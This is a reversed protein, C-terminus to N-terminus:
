GDSEVRGVRQVPGEGGTLAATPLDHWDALASELAAILKLAQEPQLGFRHSPVHGSKVTLLLTPAGRDVVDRLDDSLVAKRRVHVKIANHDTTGGHEREHMVEPRSM